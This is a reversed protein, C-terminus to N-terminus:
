LEDKISSSSCQWVPNNQNCKSKVWAKSKNLYEWDGGRAKKRRLSKIVTGNPVQMQLEGTLVGVDCNDLGFINSRPAVKFAYVYSDGQAFTKAVDFTLAASTFQSKPKDSSSIAMLQFPLSLQSRNSDTVQPGISAWNPTRFYAKALTKKNSMMYEIEKSYSTARYLYVEKNYFQGVNPDRPIDYMAEATITGVNPNAHFAKVTKVISDGSICHRDVCGLSEGAWAFSMSESECLCRAPSSPYRKFKFLNYNCYTGTISNGCPAQNLNGCTTSIEHSTEALTSSTEPDEDELPVVCSMSMLLVAATALIWPSRLANKFRLVLIM